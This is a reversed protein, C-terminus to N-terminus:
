LMEDGSDNADVWDVEPRPTMIDGIPREGIGIVRDAFEQQVQQLLGGRASESILLKLEEPSHLSEETGGPRLGCLRLVLNGLGNLTTIAPWLLFRFLGLLRVVALATRESRQLALSKPALEGLVIHLVTIIIFSIAIAAAHSSVAAISGTFGGFLPEILHALAPEGIWGLALSSITIGLQTAALNADLNDVARQLAAANTRGVAVLQAIRSRRVAVLSFESAVFFGNAAVLVLIAVIGFLDAMSDDGTPM